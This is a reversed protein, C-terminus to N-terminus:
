HFYVVSLFIYCQALPKQIYIGLGEFFHGLVPRSMSCCLMSYQRNLLQFATSNVLWKYSLVGSSRATCKFEDFQFLTTNYAQMSISLLVSRHVIFM